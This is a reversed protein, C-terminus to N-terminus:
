QETGKKITLLKSCLYSCDAIVAFINLLGATENLLIRVDGLCLFFLGRNLATM